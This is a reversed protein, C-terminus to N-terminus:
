PNSHDSLLYQEPNIISDNHYIEYHLHPGSTIGSSGVFAVVDGRNVKDGEKVIVTSNHGYVIRYGKENSIELVNGLLSDKWVATVVGSIISVIPTGIPAAIDVAQHYPSFGQSIWGKTPWISPIDNEQIDNKRYDPQTDEIGLLALLRQTEYAVRNLDVTVREITNKREEELLEVREELVLARRALTYISWYRYGLFTLFGIAIFLLTILLIATSRPIVIKRVKGEEEPIFIVSIRKPM